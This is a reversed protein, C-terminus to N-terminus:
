SAAPSGSRTRAPSRSSPPTSAARSEAPGVVSDVPKNARMNDLAAQARQLNNQGMKEYYESTGRFVQMAEQFARVAEELRATSAEREGLSTLTRGLNNQTAAWDLPMRELYARIM